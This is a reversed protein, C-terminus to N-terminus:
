SSTARRRCTSIAFSAPRRCAADAHLHALDAVLLGDRAQAPHEAHLQHGLDAAASRLAAHAASDRVRRELRDRDAADESGLEGDWNVNVGAGSGGANGGGLGGPPGTRLSEGENRVQADYEIGIVNTGFIFGNQRDHYTDFIM